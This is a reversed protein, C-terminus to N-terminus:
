DEGRHDDLSTVGAEPHDPVDAYSRAADFIGPVESLLEIIRDKTASKTLEVGNAEALSRLQPVKLARLPTLDPGTDEEMPLRQIGAADEKARLIVERQAAILDAVLTADVITAGSAKLTHERMLSGTDKVDTHTVKAVEVELVVYLKEGHHFAQPEVSLAESLGDGANTIKIKAGIVDVGEFPTLPIMTRATRVAEPM